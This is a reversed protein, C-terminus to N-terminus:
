PAAYLYRRGIRELFSRGYQEEGQAILERLRSMVTSKLDRAAIEKDQENEVEPPYVPRGVISTLSMLAMLILMVGACVAFVRCINNLVRGILADPRAATDVFLADAM